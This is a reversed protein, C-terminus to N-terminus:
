KRSDASYVSNHNRLTYDNNREGLRNIKLIFKVTGLIAEVNTGYQLSLASLTSPYLGAEALYGREQDSISLVDKSEVGM